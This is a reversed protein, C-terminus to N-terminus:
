TLTPNTGKRNYNHDPKEQPLRQALEYHSSIKPGM